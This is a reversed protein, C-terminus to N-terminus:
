VFQFLCISILLSVSLVWPLTMFFAFHSLLGTFNTGMREEQPNDNMVVHVHRTGWVNGVIETVRVFLLGLQNGMMPNLRRKTVIMRMKKKMKTQMILITTLVTIVSCFSLFPNTCAYFSYIFYICWNTYILDIYSNVHILECSSIYIYSNVHIWECLSIYICNGKLSNTHIM